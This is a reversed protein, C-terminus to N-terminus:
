FKYWIEKIAHECSAVSKMRHTRMHTLYTLRAPTATHDILFISTMKELAGDRGLTTDERLIFAGYGARAPSFM